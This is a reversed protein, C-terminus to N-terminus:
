FAVIWREKEQLDRHVVVRDFGHEHLLAVIAGPQTGSELVLRPLNDHVLVSSDCLFSKAQAVIQRYVALGDQAAVLALPDEWARVSVSLKQYETQTIYPPNSVILDFPQEDVLARYLDSEIFTVNTLHNRQANFQALAVAHPNCDIGIVTAAPCAQALALAICGTGTCLDLIRLPRTGVPRLQEILWVVWEETEPRPILIPPQVTITLDVFPVWGLLYQLPKCEVVRQTVMTQLQAEQEATLPYDLAALLQAKSKGTVHEVLWWAEQEATQQNSCVDALQDACTVVFHHLTKM